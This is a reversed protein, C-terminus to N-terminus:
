KQKMMIAAILALGSACHCFTDPHFGRGTDACASCNM